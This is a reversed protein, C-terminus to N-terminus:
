ACTLGDSVSILLPSSPPVNNLTRRCGCSVAMFEVIQGLGEGGFFLQLRSLFGQPKVIRCKHFVDCYGRMDDCPSGPQLKAGCHSAMEPFACAEKCDETGAGLVREKITM